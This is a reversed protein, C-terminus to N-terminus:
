EIKIDGVGDGEREGFEFLSATYISNPKLPATPLSVSTSFQSNGEGRGLRWPEIKKNKIRRKPM